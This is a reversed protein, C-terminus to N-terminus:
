LNNFESNFQKIIEKEDETDPPFAKAIELLVENFDLIMEKTLHNDGLKINKIGMDFASQVNLLMEKNLLTFIIASIDKGNSLRNNLIDQLIQKEENQIKGDSFALSYVVHGFGFYIHEKATM